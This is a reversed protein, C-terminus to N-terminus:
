RKIKDQDIETLPLIFGDKETSSIDTGIIRGKHILLNVVVEGDYDYNTVRYAYHTVRRRTYKELDLGQSLQLQNYGLIVRDFNKPMIFSEEEIPNEEVELGFARIFGLRDENDKIGTYNISVGEASVYVANEEGMSILVFGLLAVSLVLAFFKITSARVSCVFM